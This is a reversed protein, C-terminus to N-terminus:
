ANNQKRIEGHKLTAFGYVQMCRDTWTRCRDEQRLAMTTRNYVHCCCRCLAVLIVVLSMKCSSTRAFHLLCKPCIWSLALATYAYVATLCLWPSRYFWAGNVHLAGAMVVARRRFLGVHQWSYGRCGYTYIYHTYSWKNIKKNNINKSNSLIIDTM